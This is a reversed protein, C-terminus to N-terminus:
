RKHDSGCAAVWALIEQYRHDMMGDGDIKIAYFYNSGQECDVSKTRILCLLASLRTNGDESELLPVVTDRIKEIHHNTISTRTGAIGISRLAAVRQRVTSSPTTIIEVLKDLTHDLDFMAWGFIIPELCNRRVSPALYLAQLLQAAEENPKVNTYHWAFDAAACAQNDSLNRISQRLSTIYRPHRVAQAILPTWEDNADTLRERSIVDKFWQDAAARLILIRAFVIITTIWVVIGILVVIRRSMDSGPCQGDELLDAPLLDFM